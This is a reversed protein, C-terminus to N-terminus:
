TTKKRNDLAAHLVKLYRTRENPTRFTRVVYETTSLRKLKLQGRAYRKVQNNSPFRNVMGTEVNVIDRQIRVTKVANLLLLNPHLVPRSVQASM